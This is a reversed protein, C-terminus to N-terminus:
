EVCAYLLLHFFSLRFFLFFPFFYQLLSVKKSYSYLEASFIKAYLLKYYRDQLSLNSSCIKRLLLLSHISVHIPSKEAVEFLTNVHKEIDELIDLSLVDMIGFNEHIRYSTM